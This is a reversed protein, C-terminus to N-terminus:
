QYIAMLSVTETNFLVVNAGLSVGTQNSVDDTGFSTTVCCARSDGELNFCLRTFQPATDVCLNVRGQAGKTVADAYEPPFAAPTCAKYTVDKAVVRSAIFLLHGVLLVSSRMAPESFHGANVSLATPHQHDHTKNQGPVVIPLRCYSRATTRQVLSAKRGFRLEVIAAIPEYPYATAHPGRVHESVNSM